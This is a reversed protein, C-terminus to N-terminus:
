AAAKQASDGVLRSIRAALVEDAALRAAFTRRATVVTTRDIGIAKAVVSDSYGRAHLVWAIEHRLQAVHPYRRQGDGLDALIRVWRIGGRAQAMAEVLASVEPPVVVTAAPREKAVRPIRFGEAQLQRLAEAFAEGRLAGRSVQEEYQEAARTLANYRLASAPSASM